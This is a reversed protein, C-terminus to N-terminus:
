LMEFWGRSGSVLCSGELLWVRRGGDGGGIGLGQRVGVGKGIGGGVGRGWGGVVSDDWRGCCMVAMGVGWGCVLVREGGGCVLSYESYDWRWVM